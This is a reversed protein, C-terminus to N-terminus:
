LESQMLKLNPGDHTVDMRNIQQSKGSSQHGYITSFKSQDGLRDSFKIPDQVTDSYTLTQGRNTGIIESDPALRIAIKMEKFDKDSSEKETKSTM